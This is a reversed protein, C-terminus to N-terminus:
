RVIRLKKTATGRFGWRGRQQARLTEGGGAGRAGAEGAAPSLLRVLSRRHTSSGHPLQRYEPSPGHATEPMGLQAHQCTRQGSCGGPPLRTQPVSRSLSLAPGLSCYAANATPPMRMGAGPVPSCGCRSPAHATHSASASSYDRPYDTPCVTYERSNGCCPEGVWNKVGRRLPPICRHM